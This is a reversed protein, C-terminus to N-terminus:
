FGSTLSTLLRVVAEHGRNAATHLATLGNEDKAAIDAGKEVLLRVVAESGGKAAGHLVTWGDDAKAAVDAGKEVLLRVVAESGGLAAGHLATLGDDAKASTDAGKEVLLRVVAESGGMAAEHLVTWGDDAKASTDAGKEVLLRVVAESGGMAAEHLVTWGDDAKAAVDAGKEVLLRVVAESRGAAAGHLVTWGDDDDKVAFDAGKEVLLRVVAESGGMAAEHLVTSGDDTKAAVDAGKEVLLRVVAENGGLAAEHLVTLGDGETAAVDAGVAESGGMAAVHLATSGYDDKAAVDAGKEVLLRVVAESGGLAAAHLVTLGECGKAAVDAGKEVLLRVVAECGGLAAGHLVTLGNGDKATIDAGQELLYSCIEQQGNESARHLLTKKELDRGDVPNGGQILLTIDDLLGVSAVDHATSTDTLLWGKIDGRFYPHDLLTTYGMVAFPSIKSPTTFHVEADILSRGGHLARVQMMATLATSGSSLFTKLPERLDEPVQLLKHLHRDFFYSSYLALRYTQVRRYLDFSNDCPGDNFFGQLLYSLCSHSLMTHATTSSVFFGRLGEGDARELQATSKFGTFYEKVSYHIPRVLESDVELLNACAEIVAEQGYRTLDERKGASEEIQVAELLEKIHLPREAYLVWIFCRKALERLATTQQCIRQLARGYTHDLGRPTNHLEAEIDQDSRQKCINILQLNVWLFMGEARSVLTQIIREQLAHDRLRLKKTKVLQGVRDSVFANIDEAVNRAEIQITPTKMFAEAIDNEMRSTVFVRACPFDNALECIFDIVKERPDQQCEDLADIVLFIRDYSEALHLFNEKYKDFAPTRADGDYKHYFDLLSQPIKEKKWCLQKIFASVIQSPQHQPDPSNYKCYAFAVGVKDNFSHHTTIHELKGFCWLVESMQSHFWQQFELRQIFWNGTGPHRKAFITDHDEDFDITSIWHLFGKREDGRAKLEAEQNRTQIANLQVAQASHLLVNLHHELRGDISGFSDEFPEWQVRIFIRVSPYGLLWNREVGRKDVFVNRAKRWFDLLDCYIDSITKSFLDEPSINQYARELADREAQDLKQLHQQLAYDFAVNDGASVPTGPFVQPPPRPTSGGPTKRFRRPWSLM